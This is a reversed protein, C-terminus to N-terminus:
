QCRLQASIARSVIGFHRKGMGAPRLSPARRHPQSNTPPLSPTNKPLKLTLPHITPQPQPSHISTHLISISISISSPSPPQTSLIPLHLTPPPFPSRPKLTPIIPVSLASHHTIFHAITKSRVTNPLATFSKPLHSLPDTTQPALDKWKTCSSIDLNRDNASQRSDDANSELVCM